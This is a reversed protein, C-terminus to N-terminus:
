GFHFGYFRRAFQISSIHHFISSINSGQAAFSGGGRDTEPPLYRTAPPPVPENFGCADIPM